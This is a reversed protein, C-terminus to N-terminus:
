NLILCVGIMEGPLPEYRRYLAVVVLAFRSGREPGRTNPWALHLFSQTFAELSSAYSRRTLPAETRSMTLEILSAPEVRRCLYLYLLYTFENSLFDTGM